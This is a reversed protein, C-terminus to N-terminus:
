GTKAPHEDLWSLVRQREARCYSDFKDSCAPDVVMVYIQGNENEVLATKFGERKLRGNISPTAYYGWDKRAFDHRMGSETVFTVQEDAALAIDGMDSIVIDAKAGVTFRRPPQKPTIKMGVGM